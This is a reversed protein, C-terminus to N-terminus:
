RLDNDETRTITAVRCLKSKAAKLSQRVRIPPSNLSSDSEMLSAPTKSPCAIKM